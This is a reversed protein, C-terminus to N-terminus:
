FDKDATGSETAPTTSCAVGAQSRVATSPTWVMTGAAPATMTGGGTQAGLTITVLSRSGGATTGAVMTSAFTVSKGKKVYNQGLAITGLNSGPFSLTDNSGNDTLQVTVARGTGNWGAVVTTPDVLGTWTLQLVDGPQIRGVISSGNSAQVDFAKLPSNDVTTTVVASALQNGRGDTLLARLDYSGSPLATTSWPCSYPAVTATCITSFTSTGTVRQQLQVSAVGNTSAANATLTVTGSLWAGPDDLSVSNVTNDVTVTVTSSTTTNGAYDTAIARLDYKGGTVTTTDWRCSYPASSATCLNTWTGKGAPSSQVTVTSIGSDADAATTAVTVVGSVTSGPSTVAVTPPTNDVLVDTVTDTYSQTGVVATARLDYSDTTPTTWSCSITTTLLGSCVPKWSSTGSTAYDIGFKLSAGLPANYVRATLTVTGSLNDGPNTLVVRLTNVVQVTIGSVATYGSTDTAIARVDYAGDAVTTTNWTCQWPASTATCLTTWSGSGSPSVQIRVSAVAVNDAASASLTVTGTLGSGPDTMTVTPPTWDAAAQVVARTVTSSTYTAGSFGIGLPGALHPLAGALVALALGAALRLLPKM